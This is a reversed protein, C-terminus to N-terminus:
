PCGNGGGAYPQTQSASGTVVTASGSYLWYQLEVGCSGNPGTAAPDSQSYWIGLSLGFTGNASDGPNLKCTITDGGASCSGVGSGTYGVHDFMHGPAKIGASTVVLNAPNGCFFAIGGNPGSPAPHNAASARVAYVGM